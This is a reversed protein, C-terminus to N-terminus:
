VYFKQSDYIREVMDASISKLFSVSKVLLLCISTESLIICNSRKMQHGVHRYWSSTVHNLLLLYSYYLGGQCSIWTGRTQGPLVQCFSLWTINSYFHCLVWSIGFRTAFCYVFAILTVETTSNQIFMSGYWIKKPNGQKNAGNKFIIFIIVGM